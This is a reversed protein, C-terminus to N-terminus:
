RASPGVPAQLDRPAVPHDLARRAELLWPRPLAPRGSPVWRRELDPQPRPDAPLQRLWLRLLLSQLSRGRQAAPVVPVAPAPRDDPVCVSKVGVRVPGRGPVPALAREALDDQGRPRPL